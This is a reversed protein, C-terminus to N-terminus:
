PCFFKDMHFLDWLQSILFYMFKDTEIDDTKIVDCFAKETLENFIRNLEIAVLFLQLLNFLM